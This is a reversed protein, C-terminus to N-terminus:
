LDVTGAARLRGRRRHLEVRAFWAGALASGCATATLDDITDPGDISITRVSFWNASLWEYMEWVTGIALGFGISIAVVALVRRTAPEASRSALRVSRHHCFALCALAPVVTHAVWDLWGFARYWNAAGALTALFLAVGLPIEVRAPLRVRRLILLVALLLCFRLQSEAPM